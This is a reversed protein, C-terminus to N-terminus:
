EVACRFLTFEVTHLDCRLLHLKPVMALKLKAFASVLKEVYLIIEVNSNDPCLVCSAFETLHSSFAGPVSLGGKCTVHGSNAKGTGGELPVRALALSDSLRGKYLLLLSFSDM